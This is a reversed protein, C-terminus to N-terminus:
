LSVLLAMLNNCFHLSIPYLVNKTKYYIYAYVLGLLFRSLFGLLAFHVLSFILATFVLALWLRNTTLCLYRQLVVRFFLEEVIAPILCMSLIELSYFPSHWGQILTSIQKSVADEVGLNWSKPAFTILVSSLEGLFHSGLSALLFLKTWRWWDKYINLISMREWAFVLTRRANRYLLLPCLFLSLSSIIIITEFFGGSSIIHEDRFFSLLSISPLYLFFFSICVSGVLRIIYSFALYRNRAINM